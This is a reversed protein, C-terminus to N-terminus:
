VDGNEERKQDEYPNLFRRRYEEKANDLAAIVEAHTHYGKSNTPALRWYESATKFLLYTLEGVNLAKTNVEGLSDKQAETIYPM